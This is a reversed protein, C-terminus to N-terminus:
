QMEIWLTEQHLVKDTALLAQWCLYGPSINRSSLCIGAGPMKMQTAFGASRLSFYRM